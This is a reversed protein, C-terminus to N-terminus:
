SSAFYNCIVENPFSAKISIFFYSPLDYDHLRQFIPSSSLRQYLISHVLIINGIHINSAHLMAKCRHGEFWSRQKSCFQILCSTNLVHVFNYLFTHTSQHLVAFLVFNLCFKVVVRADSVNQSQIASCIYLFQCM